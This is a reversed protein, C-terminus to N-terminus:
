QMNKLSMWSANFSSPKFTKMASETTFVVRLFNIHTWKNLAKLSKEAFIRNSASPLMFLFPLHYLPM